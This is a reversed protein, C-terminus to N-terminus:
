AAWAKIVRVMWLTTLGLLFALGNLAVFGQAFGPMAPVLHVWCVMAVVAGALGAWAGVYVGVLTPGIICVAFLVATHGLAKWCIGDVLERQWGGAASPQLLFFDFGECEAMRSGAVVPKLAALEAETFVRRSEGAVLSLTEGDFSLRGSEVVAHGCGEQRLIVVTRGDIHAPLHM